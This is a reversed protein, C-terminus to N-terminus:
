KKKKEKELKIINMINYNEDFSYNKNNYNYITIRTSIIKYKNFSIISSKDYLVIKKLILIFQNM